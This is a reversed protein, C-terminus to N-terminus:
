DSYLFCMFKHNEDQLVQPPLPTFSVNKKRKKEKKRTMKPPSMIYLDIREYKRKVDIMNRPMKPPNSIACVSERESKGLGWNPHKPPAPLHLSPLNNKFFGDGNRLRSILCFLFFHEFSMYNSRRGRQKGRLAQSEIAPTGARESLKVGCERMGGGRGGHKKVRESMLASLKNYTQIAM